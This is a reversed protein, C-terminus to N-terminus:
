HSGTQLYFEITLHSVDFLVDLFIERKSSLNWLLFGLDFCIFEFLNLVRFIDNIVGLSKPEKLAENLGNLGFLEDGFVRNFQEISGDVFALPVLVSRSMSFSLAEERVSVIKLAVPSFTNWTWDSSKDLIISVKKFTLHLITLKMSFANFHVKLSILVNSLKEISKSLTLTLLDSRLSVSVFTGPSLTLLISLPNLQKCIPANILALKLISGDSSLTLNNKLVSVFVCSIKDISQSV